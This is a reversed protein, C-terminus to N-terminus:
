VMLQSNFLSMAQLEQWGNEIHKDTKVTSQHVRLLPPFMMLANGKPWHLCGASPAFTAEQQCHM